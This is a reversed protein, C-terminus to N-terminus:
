ERIISLEHEVPVFAESIGDALPQRVKETLAVTVEMDARGEEGHFLTKVQRTEYAQKKAVAEDVKKFAAVFPNNEFEAPLNIGQALAEAPFSKSAPGWTVRYRGPQTGSVQLMLRNLEQQFPVLNMGSRISDDRDPAGEACFPYRESTVALTGDSFSRVRHGGRGEANGTALDVTLGGLDGDLGMAELFCYAMVLQGAWGPHVGDKGAVAYDSGYAAKADHGNKLMPWFVDAFRVGQDAAIMVDINRLTALNLNLDNVTFEESRTWGPVKGVCGPSGLVVRAGANKLAVVVGEYNDRYWQGNAPDYRRYRHDNMGYCLTAITPGFRLCDNTMRRLFGEATEGSWGFQRATIKLEPVCVTLYTEIIRSYMKQETISDGLIALRDGPRLLLGGPEPAALLKFGAYAPDDPLSMMKGALDDPRSPVQAALTGVTFWIAPFLRLLPTM